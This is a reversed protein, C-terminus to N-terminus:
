DRATTTWSQQETNAEIKLVSCLADDNILVTKTHKDPSFTAKAAPEDILTFAM